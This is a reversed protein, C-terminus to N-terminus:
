ACKRNWFEGLLRSSFEWGGDKGAGRLYGDHELVELLYSFRVEDFLEGASLSERYCARVGDTSVPGEAVTVFALVARARRHEGDEFYDGLREWMSQLYQNYTLDLLRERYLKELEEEQWGYDAPLGTDEIAGLFLQIFYPWPGGIRRLMWDIVGDGVPLENDDALRRALSRAEDESLPEIRMPEFDNITDTLRYRRVITPLGISGTVLFRVNTLRSRQVRFWHLFDSAREPSKEALRKVLVPFEDILFTFEGDASGLSRFFREGAEKWEQEPIESLIAGSGAVKFERIRKLQDQIVSKFQGYRESWEGQEELADVEEIMRQIWEDVSRCGEVNMYLYAHKESHETDRLWWLISTKGTRRPGLFSVNSRSLKRQLKAVMEARIWFNPGAAIRGLSLSM